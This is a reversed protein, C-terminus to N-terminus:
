IPSEIIQIQRKWKGTRYFSYSLVAGISWGIPWSLWIGNTGMPGVLAFALLVRIILDSFTTIMFLKMSGSGRLVGDAMLKILIVFYFPSIIKLFVVGINLAVASDENLFLKIMSSGFFVYAVVFPVAVIISQIIGARFGRKVRDIKGAGINQATFSSLGNALTAFSTIAFTNMKIAASYGAIVSSGFGNILVQVFINGVSVFSQQLISPIAVWSVKKLMDVSFLVIKGDTKIAKVRHFLSIACLVCALGQAIFTAWGTGAVGWHFKAVFLYALMINALSSGILFYLPTKSDGLSAFIGTCVNYLYIFIFGAIYIKLYIAGDLFINNPTNILRMLSQTQWLGIITLVVSLVVCSILTTFIATKMDKLKKAGFLQSIVVSCGVNSGVAISMFIMTIPFSAGIAALANEGAFKGAIVSDSINYMQQFIVSIFLPISFRWLVSEPKGETLDKIM